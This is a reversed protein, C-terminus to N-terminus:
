GLFILLCTCQYMSSCVERYKRYFKTGHSEIFYEFESIDPSVVQRAAKEFEEQTFVGPGHRMGVHPDSGSAM